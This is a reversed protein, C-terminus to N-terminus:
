KHVLNDVPYKASLIRKYKAVMEAVDLAPGRLSNCTRCVYDMAKPNAYRRHARVQAGRGCDVPKSGAPIRAPGAARTVNRRIASIVESCEQCYYRHRWTKVYNCAVCLRQPSSFITM